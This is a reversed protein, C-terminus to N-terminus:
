AHITPWAIARDAPDFLYASRPAVGVSMAHGPRADIQRTRHIAVHGDLSESDVARVPAADL